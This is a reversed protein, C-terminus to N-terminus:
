LGFKEPSPPAHDDYVIAPRPPPLPPPRPEVAWSLAAAFRFASAPADVLCHQLRELAKERARM